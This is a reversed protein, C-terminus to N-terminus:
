CSAPVSRFQCNKGPPTRTFFNRKTRAINNRPDKGRERVAHSPGSNVLMDTLAPLRLEAEMVGPLRVRGTPALWCYVALPLNESKVVRSTVVCTVQVEDLGDTAVILLLPRAVDMAGPTVVM